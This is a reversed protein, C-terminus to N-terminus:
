FRDTVRTLLVTSRRILSAGLEMWIEFRTSADQISQVYEGVASLDPVMSGDDRPPGRRCDFSLVVTEGLSPSLAEMLPSLRRIIQEPDPWPGGRTHLQFGALSM